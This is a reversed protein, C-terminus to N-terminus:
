NVNVNGPPLQSLKEESKVVGPCVVACVVALILNVGAVPLAVVTVTFMVTVAELEARSAEGPTAVRVHLEPDNVCVDCVTLTVEALGPPVANVIWVGALVVPPVAIGLQSCTLTPAVVTVLELALAPPVAFAAGGTTSVKEVRLAHV